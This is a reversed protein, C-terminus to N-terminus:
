GPDASLGVVPEGGALREVLRVVTADIPPRAQEPPGPAQQGPSWALALYHGAHDSLAVVPVGAAEPDLSRPGGPRGLRLPTEPPHAGRATVQRQSGKYWCFAHATVTKEVAKALGEWLDATASRSPAPPARASARPMPPSGDRVVVQVERHERLWDAPTAATRDPLVDLRAHTDADLVLTAYRERRRLAFDDVSVARARGAAVPVDMVSRLVTTASVAVAWLVRLRVGLRGAVAVGTQAIV